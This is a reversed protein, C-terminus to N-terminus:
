KNCFCGKIKKIKVKRFDLNLLNIILISGDLNKGVNLVKKGADVAPDVINDYSGIMEPLDKTLWGSEGWPGVIGLKEMLHYSPKNLWPYKQYLNELGM